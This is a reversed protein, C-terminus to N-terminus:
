GARQLTTGAERLDAEIFATAREPSSTLLAQAHSLVVSDNDV